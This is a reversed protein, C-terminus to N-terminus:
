TFINYLVFTDFWDKLSEGWSVLLFFSLLSFFPFILPLASIVSISFPFTISFTFTDFLKFLDIFNVFRYCVPCLFFTSGCIVLILFLFPSLIRTIMAFGASMLLILSYYTCSCLCLKSSISWNRLFCLSGCQCLMFYDPYDHM